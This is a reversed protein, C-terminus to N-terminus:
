AAEVCMKMTKTARHFAVRVAGASMSFRAAVDAIAEDRYVIAEVIARGRPSLRGILRSVDIHAEPASAFGPAIAEDFEDLPRLRHFRALRIADIAKNRAVAVVWTELPRTRDWAPLIQHVALLTEQVADDIMEHPCNRSSVVRAAVKRALRGVDELLRRYARADGDM